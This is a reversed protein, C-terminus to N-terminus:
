CRTWRTCTRPVPRATLSGPWRSRGSCRRWRGATGRKRRTRAIGTRTGTVDDRREERAARLDLHDQFMRRLLERGRAGTVESSGCGDAIDDLLHDRVELGPPDHVGIVPAWDLM